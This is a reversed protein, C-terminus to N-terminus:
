LYGRIAWRKRDIPGKSEYVEPTVDAVPGKIVAGSLNGCHRDPRRAHKPPAAPSNTPQRSTGGSRIGRYWIFNAITRIEEGSLAAFGCNVTFQASSLLLQGFILTLNCCIETKELSMKDHKQKNEYLYRSRDYYKKNEAPRPGTEIDKQKHQPITAGGLPRPKSVLYLPDLM